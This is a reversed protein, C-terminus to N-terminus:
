ILIYESFSTGRNDLNIQRSDIQSLIDQESTEQRILFTCMFAINDVYPKECM